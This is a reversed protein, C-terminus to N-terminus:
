KGNIMPIVIKKRSRDFDPHKENVFTETTSIAQQEVANLEFGRTSACPAIILFGSAALVIKIPLDMQRVDERSDLPKEASTLLLFRPAIASASGEISSAGWGALGSTSAM